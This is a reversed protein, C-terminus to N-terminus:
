DVLCAREIMIALADAAYDFLLPSMSDGQRLGQFTPFYPGNEDNVKIAVKGSSISRMVWDNFKSPFGKVELIQLLFPWKIKDFAKEFDIKFM